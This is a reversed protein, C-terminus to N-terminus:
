HHKYFGVGRIDNWADTQHCLFCQDVRAHEQRAVRQSMMQFHEMYHSPPPQHCQDCDHSRPSPHLYGAIDWTRTVHCAGCERGFFGRHPDRNGHCTACELLQVVAEEGTDLPPLREATARSHRWGSFGRALWGAASEDGPRRLGLKALAVHDMQIPRGTGLHEVHCVSCQSVQAHFATPQLALLNRENAHCVICGQAPSSEGARHCSACSEELFAHKPSLPGPRALRELLSPTGGLHPWAWLLAATAPIVALGWLWRWKM